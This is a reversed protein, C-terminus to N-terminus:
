FGIDIEKTMEEKFARNIRRIDIASIFPTSFSTDKSILENIDELKQQFTTILLVVQREDVFNEEKKSISNVEFYDVTYGLKREIIIESLKKADEVNSCKTYVFVM